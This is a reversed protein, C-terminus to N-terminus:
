LSSALPLEDKHVFDENGSQFRAHIICNKITISKVCNWGKSIMIGVCKRESYKISLNKIHSKLNKIGSTKLIQDIPQLLAQCFVVM